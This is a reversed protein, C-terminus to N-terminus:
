FPQRMIVIPDTSMPPAFVATPGDPFVARNEIALFAPSLGFISKVIRHLSDDFHQAGDRSFARNCENLFRNL